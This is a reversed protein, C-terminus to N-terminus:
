DPKGAHGSAVSDPANSGSRAPAAKSSVGGAGQASVPHDGDELRSAWVMLCSGFALACILYVAASSLHVGGLGGGLGGWRSEINVGGRTELARIARVGFVVLGILLVVFTLPRWYGHLYFSVNLPAVPPALRTAAASAFWACVAEIVALLMQGVLIARPALGSSASWPRWLAAGLAVTGFASVSRWVWVAVSPFGLASFSLYLGACGAVLMAGAAFTTESAPEDFIVVIAAVFGVIVAVFVILFLWLALVHPSFQAM